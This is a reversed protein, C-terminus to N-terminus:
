PATLTYTATQSYSGTPYSWSNALFYTYTGSYSGSGTGFAAADQATTKNMTGAVFPAGSATWRVNGIAITDGGSELDGNAQVVLTPTSSSGTRVKATVTVVSGAQISPTTTPSADAFTITTPSLTLEARASVTANITLVQTSQALANQSVPPLLFLLLAAFPAFFAAHVQVRRDSPLNSM